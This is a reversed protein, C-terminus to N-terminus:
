MHVYVWMLDGRGKFRCLIKEMRQVLKIDDRDRDGCLGGEVDTGM